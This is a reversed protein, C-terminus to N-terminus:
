AILVGKTWCCIPRPLQAGVYTPGQNASPATSPLKANISAGCSKLAQLPQALCSLELAQLPQAPCRREPAQLPQAPCCWQPSAIRPVASGLLKCLSRWVASGSPKHSRQAAGVNPRALAAGFLVAQPSTAAGLRRRAAGAHPSPLAAGLQAPCCRGSPHAAHSPAWM